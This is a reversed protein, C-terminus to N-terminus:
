SSSSSSPSPRPAGCAPPGAKTTTPETSLDSLSDLVAKARSPGPESLLAIATRLSKVRFDDQGPCRDIRDLFAALEVALHRMEIFQLDLLEEKTKM